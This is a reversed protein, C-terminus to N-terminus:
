GVCVAVLDVVLDDYGALRMIWRERRPELFNGYRRRENPNNINRICTIPMYRKAM